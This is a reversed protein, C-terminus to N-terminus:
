PKQFNMRRRHRFFVFISRWRAQASGYNGYYERRFIDKNWPWQGNPVFRCYADVTLAIYTCPLIDAIHPPLGKIVTVDQTKHIILPLARLVTMVGDRIGDVELYHCQRTAVRLGNFSAWLRALCGQTAQLRQSQLTTM